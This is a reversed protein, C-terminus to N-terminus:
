ILSASRWCSVFFMASASLRPAGTTRAVASRGASRKIANAWRSPMVCTMKPWLERVRISIRMFPDVSFLNRSSTFSAATCTTGSHSDDGGEDGHHREGPTLSRACELTERRRARPGGVELHVEGLGGIGGV